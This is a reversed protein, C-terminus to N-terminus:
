LLNSAIGLRSNVSDHESQSSRRRQYQRCVRGSGVARQQSEDSTSVSSPQQIDKSSAGTNRSDGDFCHAAAEERAVSSNVTANDVRKRTRERM